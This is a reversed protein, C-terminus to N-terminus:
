TIIERILLMGTSSTRRFSSHCRSQVTKMIFASRGVTRSLLSGSQDSTFLTGLSSQSVHGLHLHDVM